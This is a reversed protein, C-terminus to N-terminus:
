PLQAVRDTSIAGFSQNSFHEPEVLWKLASCADIKDDNRSALEEVGGEGLDVSIEAPCPPAGYRPQGCVIDASARAARRGGLSAARTTSRAMLTYWSTNEGIYAPDHRNTGDQECYALSAIRFNPAPRPDHSATRRNVRQWGNPEEPM